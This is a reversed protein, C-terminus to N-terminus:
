KKSALSAKGQAERSEVENNGKADEFFLTKEIAGYKLDGGFFHKEAASVCPEAPKPTSPLKDSVQLANCCFGVCDGTQKNKSACDSSRMMEVCKCCDEVPDLSFVSRSLSPDSSFVQIAKGGQETGIASPYEVRSTVEIEEGGPSFAGDDVEIETSKIEMGSDDERYGAVAAPVNGMVESGSDEPDSGDEDSDAVSDEGGTAYEDENDTLSAISENLLAGEKVAEDGSVYKGDKEGTNVVHDADAMPSANFIVGEARQLNAGASSQLKKTFNKIRLPILGKMSRIRAELSAIRVSDFPVVKALKEEAELEKVSSMVYKKSQRDLSQERNMLLLHLRLDAADRFVHYPTRESDLAMVEGVNKTGALSPFHEESDLNALVGFHNKSSRKTRDRSGSSFDGLRNRAQKSNKMAKVSSSAGWPREGM